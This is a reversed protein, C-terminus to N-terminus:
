PTHIHSLSLSFPYVLGSSTASYNEIEISTIALSKIGFFSNLEKKIEQGIKETPPSLDIFLM